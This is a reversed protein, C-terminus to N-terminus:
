LALWLAIAGLAVLPWPGPWVAWMLGTLALFTGARTGRRMLYASAHKSALSVVAVLHWVKAANRLPSVPSCYPPDAKYRRLDALENRWERLAEPELWMGAVRGGFRAVRQTVAGEALRARAGTCPRAYPDEAPVPLAEPETQNPNRGTVTDTV